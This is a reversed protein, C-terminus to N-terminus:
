APKHVCGSFKVFRIVDHDLRGEDKGITQGPVHPASSPRVYITTWDSGQLM